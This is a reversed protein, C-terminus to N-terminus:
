RGAAELAYAAATAVGEFFGPERDAAWGRAILLEWTEWLSLAEYRAPEPPDPVLGDLTRGAEAAARLRRGFSSTWAYFGMEDGAFYDERIAREFRGYAQQRVQRVVHISDRF